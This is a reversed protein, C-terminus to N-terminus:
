ASSWSIETDGDEDHPWKAGHLLKLMKGEENFGALKEQLAHLEHGCNAITGAPVSSERFSAGKGNKRELSITLSNGYM